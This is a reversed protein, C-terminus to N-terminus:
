RGEREGGRGAEGSEDLAIEDLTRTEVSRYLPTQTELGPKCIGRVKNNHPAGPIYEGSVCPRAVINRRSGRGNKPRPVRDVRRAACRRSGSAGDVKGAFERRGCGREFKLKLM